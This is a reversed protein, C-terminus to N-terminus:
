RRLFDPFFCQRTTSKCVQPVLSLVIKAKPNGFRVAALRNMAGLVGGGASPEAEVGVDRSTIGTWLWLGPDVFQRRENRSLYQNLLLSAVHVFQLNVLCTDSKSSFSNSAPVIVTNATAASTSSDMVSQSWLLRHLWESLLRILSRADALPLTRRQQFFEEDDIGLLQFSVASCLLYLANLLMYHNSTTLEPFGSSSSSSISSVNLSKFDSVGLSQCYSWM